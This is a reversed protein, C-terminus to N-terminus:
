GKIGPKPTVCYGGVSYVTVYGHERLLKVRAIQDVEVALPWLDWRRCGPIGAPPGADDARRAGRLPLHRLLSDSTVWFGIKTTAVM